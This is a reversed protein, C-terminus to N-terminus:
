GINTDKLVKDVLREILSLDINKYGKSIRIVLEVKVKNIIKNRIYEIDRASLSRNRPNIKERYKRSVNIANEIEKKYYSAIEKNKSAMRLVEHMIANSLTGIILEILKKRNQPM